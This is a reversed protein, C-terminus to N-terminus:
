GAAAEARLQALVEATQPVAVAAPLEPQWALTGAPDVSSFYLAM